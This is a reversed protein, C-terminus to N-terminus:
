QSIMLIHDFEEDFKYVQSANENTPMLGIEESDSIQSTHEWVHSAIAAPKNTQSFGPRCVGQKHPGAATKTAILILSTSSTYHFVKHEFQITCNFPLSHAAGVNDNVNTM